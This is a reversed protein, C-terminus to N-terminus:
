GMKGDRHWVFLVFTEAASSGVCLLMKQLHEHLLGLHQKSDRLGGGPLHQKEQYYKWIQNTITVVLITVVVIGSNTCM